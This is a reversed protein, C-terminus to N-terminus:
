RGEGMTMVGRPCVAACSACGKCYDTDAEYGRREGGPPLIAVEPCFLYCRDCATCTGCYFCRGAEYLAEERSLGLHIEQFGKKREELGLRRGERRERYQLFMPELDKFVVLAKSDWGPRARFFSQISFSPGKGLALNEAHDHFQTGLTRLHIALAARKGAGVAEVVSGPYRVADGGAFIGRLPTEMTVPDISLGTAPGLQLLAGEGVFSLDPAQGVALIVQDAELTMSTDQDYQPSFRGQSDSVSTCGDLLVGRVKGDRGLIARPGWGNRFVIGEELADQCEREHAPMQERKELSVMEVSSAGQRLASMAVDVAVNGGGIVVVRGMPDRLAGRRIEALFELGLHVGSLDMGPIDLTKSNGAGTALFVAKHVKRLGELQRTDVKVGTVVHIGLSITRMLDQELIHRPLRYEPIARRLLGGLDEEAEILTVPHGMRGLHYAASLGAPGSGVVAVPCDAGADTLREPLAHGLTSAARELARIQVAGDWEARNCNGECPHYCVRGCVGPLPNEELFAALAGDFDGESARFLAMSINNGAPCGVRCPSVKERHVPRRSSWTGTKFVLTSSRSVPIIKEPDLFAPKEMTTERM